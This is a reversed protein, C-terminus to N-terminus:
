AVPFFYYTEQSGRVQRTRVAELAGAKVLGRVHYAVISLYYDESELCKVIDTPSLPEGIWLLVEVIVVKAPHVLHPVLSGRDFTSEGGEEETSVGEARGRVPPM